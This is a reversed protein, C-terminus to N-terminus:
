IQGAAGVSEKSEETATPGKVDKGVKKGFLTKLEGVTKFCGFVFKSQFWLNAACLNLLFPTKTDKNTPVACRFQCCVCNLFSSGGANFYDGSVM